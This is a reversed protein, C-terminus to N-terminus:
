DDDDWEEPTDPKEEPEDDTETAAELDAYLTEVDELARGYTETLEPPISDQNIARLEELATEAHSRDSM